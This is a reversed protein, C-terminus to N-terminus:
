FQGMIATITDAYNEDYYLMGYMVAARTIKQGYLRTEEYPITELFIDAPLNPAQRRWNRVRTIGANYSFVAMLIDGDLRRILESLYFSGFRINTPADNLNYEKMKLKRAVDGATSDMLQTLGHAGAGSVIDSQFCSESHILAFMLWPEMDYQRAEAEVFTRYYPPFALKMLTENGPRSRATKLALSTLTLYRSESGAKTVLYSYTQSIDDASLLSTNDKLLRWSYDSYDYDILKGLLHETFAAKEAENDDAFVPLQDADACPTFATGTRFRAILDYYTGYEANQLATEYLSSAAEEPSTFGAIEAKCLGSELLRATIVAYKARSVSSFFAENDQWISVFTNWDYGTLLDAALRDLFDEFYSPDQWTNAYESLGAATKRPSIKRSLELYYWLPRDYSLTSYCVSSAKKYWDLAKQYQSSGSKEYLRGAYFCLTWKEAAYEKNSPNGTKISAAEAFLNAASLRNVDSTLWSSAVDELMRASFGSLTLASFKVPYDTRSYLTSEKLPHYERATKLATQSVELYPHDTLLELLQDSAVDAWEDRRELCLIFSDAAEKIHGQASQELAQFFLDESSFQEQHHCSLLTTAMCLTLLFTSLIRAKLKM